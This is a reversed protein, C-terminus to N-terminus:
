KTLKNLFAQTQHSNHPKTHTKIILRSVLIALNFFILLLAKSGDYYILKIMRLKVYVTNVCYRPLLLCFQLSIKLCPCLYLLNFDDVVKKRQRFLNESHKLSGDTQLTNELLKCVSTQLKSCCVIFCQASNRHSILRQDSQRRVNWTNRFFGEWFFERQWLPKRGHTTDEIQSV